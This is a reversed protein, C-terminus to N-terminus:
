TVRHLPSFIHSIAVQKFTPSPSKSKSDPQAMTEVEEETIEDESAEVMDREDEAM